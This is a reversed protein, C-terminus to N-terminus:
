RWEGEWTEEPRRRVDGGNERGYRRREVERTVETRGGVYGGNEM